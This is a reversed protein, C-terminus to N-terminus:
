KDVLGTRSFAHALILARVGATQEGIKERLEQDLLEQFFARACELAADETTQRSFQLTVPLITGTTQGLIVTCKAAFRYAAKQVSIVRYQTLDITTSISGNEFRLASM